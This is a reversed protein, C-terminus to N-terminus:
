HLIDVQPLAEGVGVGIGDLAEACWDGNQRVQSVVQSFSANSIGYQCAVAEVVM